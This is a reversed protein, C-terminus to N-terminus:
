DEFRLVPFPQGAQHRHDGAPLVVFGNAASLSRLDASGLWPLPRVRWGSEGPEIRAPYYTPRDTAYAFDEALPLPILEIGANAHGM